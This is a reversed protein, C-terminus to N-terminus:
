MTTPMQARLFELLPINWVLFRSTDLCLVPNVFIDWKLPTDLFKLKEAKVYNHFISLLIDIKLSEM